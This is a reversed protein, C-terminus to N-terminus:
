SEDNGFRYVYGEHARRQGTFIPTSDETRQEFPECVVGPQPRYKCQTSLALNHEHCYKCRPQELRVGSPSFRYWGDWATAHQTGCDCCSIKSTQRKM